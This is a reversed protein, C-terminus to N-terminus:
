QPVPFTVGKCSPWAYRDCIENILERCTMDDRLRVPNLAHDSIPLGSLPNYLPKSDLGARVIEKITCKNCKVWGRCYEYKKYEKYDVAFMRKGCYACFIVYTKKGTRRSKRVMRM